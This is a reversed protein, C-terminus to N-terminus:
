ADPRDVGIPAVTAYPDGCHELGCEHGGREGQQYAGAAGGCEHGRLRRHIIVVRRAGPRAECLRAIAVILVIAGAGAFSATLSGRLVVHVAVARAVVVAAAVVPRAAAHLAIASGVARTSERRAAGAGVEAVAGARASASRLEIARHASRLECGAARASGAAHASGILEISWAAAAGARAGVKRRSVTRASEGRSGARRHIAASEARAIAAARHARMTAAGAMAFTRLEVSWRASGAIAHIVVAASEIPGGIARATALRPIVPGVILGRGRGLFSGLAAM